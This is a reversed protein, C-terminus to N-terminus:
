LRHGKARRRVPAWSPRARGLAMVILSGWLWGLLWGAVVDSPYHVGLYIRSYGVVVGYIILAATWVPAYASLVAAAAMCNVAHNSPFSFGGPQYPLKLDVRDSQTIFPRPKAFAPKMLNHNAWDSVGVTLALLGVVILARTRFRWWAGLLLGPVVLFRIWWFKHLHTIFMFFQDLSAHTWQRNILTLLELDLSWM